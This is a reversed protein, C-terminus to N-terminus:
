KVGRSAFLDTRWRWLDTPLLLGTHQLEDLTADTFPGVQLTSAFSQAQFPEENLGCNERVHCVVHANGPFLYSSSCELVVLVHNLPQPILLVM